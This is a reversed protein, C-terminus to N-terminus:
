RSAPTEGAVVRVDEYLDRNLGEPAFALAIRRCAKARRGNWAFTERLADAFGEPTVALRGVEKRILLDAVVGSPSAVVPTGCALSELVVNPVAEFGSPLLCADAADLLMALRDQSVPGMFHVRGPAREGATREMQQRLSGSGAIVFHVPRPDTAMTRAVETVVEPHKVAELRGAFAVIRARRSISFRRSLDARADRRHATDSRVFRALDVPVQFPRIRDAAKPVRDALHRGVEPRLVYVRNMRGVVADLVPSYLRRFHQWRSDSHVGTVDTLDWVHLFLVKPLPSALFPLATEVRDFRLVGDRIRRRVGLARAAFRLSLPIPPRQQVSSLVARFGFPNAPPEPVGPRGVGWYRFVMHEPAALVFNRQVSVIGDPDASFPNGPHVLHLTLSDNV